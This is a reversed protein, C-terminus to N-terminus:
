MIILGLVTKDGIRPGLYQIDTFDRIFRYQVVCIEKYQGSDM